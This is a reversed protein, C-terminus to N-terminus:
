VIRVDQRDTAVAVGDKVVWVQVWHAGVFSSHETIVEGSERIDGREADQRRAEEGINRVKWFLKYPAPVTCEEVKFKLSRGIPVLNGAQPLPRYRRFGSKTPSMRGVVSVTYAPDLRTPIGFHQGLFQERPAPQEAYRQAIAASLATRSGGAAASTSGSGFNTGFVTRWADVSEDAPADLATQMDTAWTSLRSKFTVFASQPWRDALNQGTQDDVFPVFVHSDLYTKLDNVLAVLTRPLDTYSTFPQVRGALLSSLVVSPIEASSNDRLYKMLRVTKVLHGTAAKNQGVFWSSLATPEALIFQNKTRHTIYTLGDARTVFPVIDIHFDGAYDITACRKGLKAKDGYRASDDFAKHLKVTYHKPEWGDVEKMPLLVDADFDNRRQPKIITRSAYSGQPILDGDLCIQLDAHDNVFSNIAEVRANLKKTRDPNLNVHDDLFDKFENHRPTM